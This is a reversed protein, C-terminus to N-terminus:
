KGNQAKHLHLNTEYQMYGIHRNLLRCLSVNCDTYQDM